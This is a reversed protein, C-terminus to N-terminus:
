IPAPHANQWLFHVRPRSRAVSNIGRDSTQRDLPGVRFESAKVTRRCVRYPNEQPTTGFRGAMRPLKVFSM